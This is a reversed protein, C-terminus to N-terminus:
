DLKKVIMKKPLFSCNISSLHISPIRFSQPGPQSSNLDRPSEELSREGRTM